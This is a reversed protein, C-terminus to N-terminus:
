DESNSYSLLQIYKEQYYFGDEFLQHEKCYEIIRELVIMKDFNYNGSQIQNYYNVLKKYYSDYNSKILYNLCTVYTKVEESLEVKSEKILDLYFKCDKLQNIQYYSWALVYYLDEKYQNENLYKEGYYIAKEYQKAMMLGYALNFTINDIEDKSSYSQSLLLAKQYQKEMKFYDKKNLYVHGILSECAVIRRFDNFQFFIKKAKSIYDLSQILSLQHLKIHSLHYYAMGCIEYFPNSQIATLYHTEGDILNACDVHYYLGKFYFYICKQNNSFLDFVEDCKKILLNIDDNSDDLVRSSFKTLLVYPYYFSYYWNKNNIIMNSYKMRNERDVSVYTHIYTDFLLPLEDFPDIEWNFVIGLKNFINNITNKNIKKRGNEIDSLFQSSIDLKNSLDSLNINKEKRLNKIIIGIIKEQYSQNSLKM